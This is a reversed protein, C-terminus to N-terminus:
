LYRAQTIDFWIVGTTEGVGRGRALGSIVDSIELM